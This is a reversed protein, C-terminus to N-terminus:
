TIKNSIRIDGSEATVGMRLFPTMAFGVKRCRKRLDDSDVTRIPFVVSVPVFIRFKFLISFHAGQDSNSDSDFGRCPKM